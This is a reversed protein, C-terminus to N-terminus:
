FLKMMVVQLKQDNLIFTNYMEGMSLNKPIHSRVLLFQQNPILMEKKGVNKKSPITKATPHHSSVLTEPFKETDVPPQTHIEQLMANAQSFGKRVWSNAYEMWVVSITTVVTLVINKLCSPVM